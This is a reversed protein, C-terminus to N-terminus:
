IGLDKILDNVKSGLKVSVDNRLMDYMKQNFNFRMQSVQFSTDAASFTESWVNGIKATSKFAFALMDVSIDDDEASAVAIEFNGCQWSRMSADFLKMKQDEKDLSKMTQIIKKLVAEQKTNFFNASKESLVDDFLFQSGKPRFTDLTPKDFPYQWALGSLTYLYRDLWHDYSRRDAVTGIYLQNILTSYLLDQRNQSNVGDAFAIISGSVVYAAQHEAARAISAHDPLDLNRIFELQSDLQTKKLQQTDM